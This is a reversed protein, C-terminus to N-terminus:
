AEDWGVVIGNEFHIKLAFRNKAIQQYCYTTKTKTKFVREKVDVPQGLAEVVMEITCGQWYRGQLIAAAAEPGFRQSLQEFRAQQAQAVQQATLEARARKARLDVYYFFSLLAIAGIGLPLAAWGLQGVVFLVAVGVATLASVVILCGCGDAHGSTSARRSGAGLGFTTRNYVRNYAAKKPNTVWGMGRPAKLGLNHRIVRKVSTRAAFRKKLSPKRFGFKM